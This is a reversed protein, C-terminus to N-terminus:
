KNITLEQELYTSTSVGNAGIDIIVFTAYMKTPDNEVYASGDIFQKGDKSRFHFLFFTQDDSVAQNLVYLTQFANGQLRGIQTTGNKLFGWTAGAFQDTKASETLQDESVSGNAADAWTFVFVDKSGAAAKFSDAQQGSTPQGGQAAAHRSSAILPLTLALVAGVPFLRRM